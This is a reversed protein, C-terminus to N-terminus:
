FISNVIDLGITAGAGFIAANGLKSGFKKLHGGHHAEQQPQQQPEQIQQPPPQQYYNTLPPPYQAYGGYLQQPAMQQGYGGPAGYPQQSPPPGYNLHQSPAFSQNSSHSDTKVPVPASRNYSAAQSYESENISKVYNSPFVGPKDPHDGKKYGKWWDESLHEVIAIKEGEKFSLDGNKDAAYDYLAECYGIPKLPSSAPAKYDPPPGSPADSPPPGSPASHGNVNMAAMLKTLSDGGLADVDVPSSGAQYKKPLTDVLKEYLGDTIVESDRLFELETRITTLSRNILPGLM